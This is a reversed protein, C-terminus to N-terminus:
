AARRQERERKIWIFYCVNALIISLVIFVHVFSQAAMGRTADPVRHLIEEMGVLKEYEASGKMGGVIGSLRSLRCTRTTSRRRCRPSAPVWRCADPAPCRVYDLDGGDGGGRHRLHVEHQSMKQVNEYIPMSATPKGSFDMSFTSTINSDMGLIVALTGYRFGLFVYDVGSIKNFRRAEDEIATQMLGPGTPWLTLLHPKIGKKFCQALVAHLFPLLEPKSAPDFDAAILISSGAPLADIKDISARSRRRPCSRCAQAALDTPLGRLHRRDHLHHAPRLQPHLQRGM